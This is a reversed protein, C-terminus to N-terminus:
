LLYDGPLLLCLLSTTKNNRLVDLSKEMQAISNNVAAIQSARSHKRKCYETRRNAKEKQQYALNQRAM